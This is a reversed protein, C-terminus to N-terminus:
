PTVGAAAITAVACDHIVCDSTTTRYKTMGAIYRLTAVLHDRVPDAQRLEAVEVAGAATPSLGEMAQNIAKLHRVLSPSIEALDHKQTGEYADLLPGIIPMVAASQEQRLREVETLEDQAPANLKNLLVSAIEDDVGKLVVLQAVNGLKEIFSQPLVLAPCDHIISRALKFKGSEFCDM